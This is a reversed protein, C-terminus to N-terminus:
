SGSRISLSYRDRMEALKNVRWRYVVNSIADNSTPLAPSPQSSSGSVLHLFQAVSTIASGKGLCPSSPRLSYDANQLTILSTNYNHSSIDTVFQPDVTQGGLAPIGGTMWQCNGTVGTLGDPLYSTGGYFISNTVTNNTGQLFIASSQQNNGHSIVTDHDIIWGTENVQPYGSINIDKNLFLTNKITVNNVTAGPYTTGNITTPTNGLIVGEKLGPGLVSNQIVIGSSVGGGYIQYGDQHVCENFPLGQELPSERTEHLWSSSITINNVTDASDFADDANDHINMQQFTLNSGHLFVGHGNTNPNWVGNSQSATGNDYIEINRVTDNSPNGSMDIGYYQFGYIAIGGWSLGDLNVWSNTGFVIGKQVTAPQYTYTPQGCYPLPTSRGGFLIVKGNHGSDTAREITIPAGQVGSKGITLTTTYTMNSTGGDLLITDGPQIVSWNIQNLENWATQWSTGDANNGNKSIYYTHGGTAAYQQTQQQQRSFFISLPLAILLLVALLLGLKQSRTLSALVKRINM